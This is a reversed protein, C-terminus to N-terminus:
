PPDSKGDASSPAPSEVVDRDGAPVRHDPPDGVAVLHAVRPREVAGVDVVFADVGSWQVVEGVELDAPEHEDEEDSPMDQSGWRGPLGARVERDALDQGLQAVLKGVDGDRLDAEELALTEDIGLAGGRSVPLEVVLVERAQPPDQVLLLLVEQRELHDLLAEVLELRALRQREVVRRWRGGGAASEPSTASVAAPTDEAAFAVPAATGDVRGSELVPEGAGM